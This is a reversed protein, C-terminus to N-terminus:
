QRYHHGKIKVHSFFGHLINIYVVRLLVIVRYIQIIFKQMWNRLDIGRFAKDVEQVTHKITSSDCKKDYEIM